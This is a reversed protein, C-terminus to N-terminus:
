WNKWKGPSIGEDVGSLAISNRPYERPQPFLPRNGCDIFLTLDIKRCNGM